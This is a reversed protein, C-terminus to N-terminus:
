REGLFFRRVTDQASRLASILIIATGMVLAMPLSDWVSSVCAMMWWMGCIVTAWSMWAQSLFRSDSSFIGLAGFLLVVDCEEDVM